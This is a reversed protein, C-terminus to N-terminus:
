SSYRSCMTPSVPSSPLPLFRKWNGLSYSQIHEFMGNRMDRAFDQSIRVANRHARLTVAAGFLSLVLMLLGYKVIIDVNGYAVGDDIIISTIYPLALDVLSGTIKMSASILIGFVYPRIYEGVRGFRLM